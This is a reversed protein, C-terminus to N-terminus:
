RRGCRIRRDLRGGAGGAAPDDDDGPPLAVIEFRGAAAHDAFAFEVVVKRRNEGAQIREAPLDITRDDLLSDDHMRDISRIATPPVGSTRTMRYLFTGTIAITRRGM